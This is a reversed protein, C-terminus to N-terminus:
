DVLVLYCGDVTLATTLDASDVLIGAYEQFHTEGTDYTVDYRIDATNDGNNTVTIEIYSGSINAAFAGWNWDSSNVRTPNGDYGSGWGFNDMRVVAFEALNARRLITVPSNWNNAGTSYTYLKFTKSTGSAVTFNASHAGWFGTTLDTAGVQSAGKVLTVPCTTTVTGTSGVYSILASQSGTVAPIKGFQLNENPMIGTSGDSYTATVVLGRTNFIIPDSNFYHYTTIVPLTTVELGTVANTVELNYFTSVPPGFKGQKTKSYAVVVTKEGLTTVDPVNFSLDVSDVEESSGDAYTVTATGNGWVNENNLEVFEPTGEVAISVANVDEVATIQSPLLYARQMVYHSGDCVLFANIEEVSEIPQYYSLIIEEGNTGVSTAELFIYGTTSHDIELKVSAGEMTALFDAKEAPSTNLDVPDVPLNHTILNPDFNSNHASWGEADSRFAFYEAYGDAGREGNSTVVVWNNWDNAGNGYNIFELVLRKNIPVAFYDSWVTWFPDTNAESGVVETAIDIFTTDNGARAAAISDIRHQLDSPSDVSYLDMEECGVLGFTAFVAACLACWILKTIKM